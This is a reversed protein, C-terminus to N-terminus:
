INTHIFEDNQIATFPRFLDFGLIARILTNSSRVLFYSGRQIFLIRKVAQWM